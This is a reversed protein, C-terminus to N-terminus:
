NLQIVPIRICQSNDSTKPWCFQRNGCGLVALVLSALCCVAFIGYRLKWSHNQKPGIQPRIKESAQAPHNVKFWQSRTGHRNKATAKGNLRMRSFGITHTVVEYMPHAARAAEWLEWLKREREMRRKLAQWKEEPLDDM